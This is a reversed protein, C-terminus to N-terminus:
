SFPNSACRWATVADVGFAAVMAVVIASSVPIIANTIMAPAAIHMVHRWSALITRLPAFPNAFVRLGRNLYLLTFTLLYIVFWLHSWSFYDVSTFFRPLFDFFSGSFAPTRGTM